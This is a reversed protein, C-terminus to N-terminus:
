RADASEAPQDNLRETEENVFGTAIRVVEAALEDFRALAGSYVVQLGNGDRVTRCGLVPDFDYRDESQPLGGCAEPEISAGDVADQSQKRRGPQGQAPKRTESGNVLTKSAPYGEIDVSRRTNKTSLPPKSATHDEIADSDASIDSYRHSANSRETEAGHAVDGTPRRVTISNRASKSGSPNGNSNRAGRATGGTHGNAASVRKLGGGSGKEAEFPFVDALGSLSPVPSTMKAPAAGNVHREVLRQIEAQAAATNVSGGYECERRVDDSLRKRVSHLVNVSHLLRLKLRRSKLLQLTYMTELKRGPVQENGSDATEGEVSEEASGAASHPWAGSGMRTLAKPPALKGPLTEARARGSLPRPQSKGEHTAGKKPTKPTSVLSSSRERESEPILLPKPKAGETETRV